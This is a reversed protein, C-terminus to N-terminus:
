VGDLLVYRDAMVAILSVMEYGMVVESALKISSFECNRPLYFIGLIAFDEPSASSRVKGIERM